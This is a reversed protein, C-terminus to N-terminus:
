ISNVYAAETRRYEHLKNRLTRISIGLLHAAQTRNDGTFELTKIILLREAESVTMGPSLTRDLQDNELGEILLDNETIIKESSMLVAREIVNQLERINGPWRWSLLKMVANKHLCKEEINNESCAMGLFSKSLLDIDKPRSRLPPLDLPIVNLRYFLDERFRGEKIMLQLSRNTTAILRVDIKVPSQGGLRQVEGEQIVRLLKAQLLVPMESIEDLLFTSGNALEFMGAKRSDAGTFAGKEYGFLESELLNEPLAACNVAYFPRSSRTSRSHIFRAILEKGTGSEGCILVTARSSAINEAVELLNKMKPDATHIVSNRM